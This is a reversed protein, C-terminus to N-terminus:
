YILFLQVVWTQIKVHTTEINSHKILHLHKHNCKNPNLVRIGVSIDACKDLNQKITSKPVTTKSSIHSDSRPSLIKITTIIQISQAIIEHNIRQKQFNKYDKAINKYKQANNLTITTDTKNLIRVSNYSIFAWTIQTENNNFTTHYQLM